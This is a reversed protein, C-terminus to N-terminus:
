MGIMGLGEEIELYTKIEYNYGPVGIYVAMSEGVAMLGQALHANDLEYFTISHVGQKVDASIYPGKKTLFDPLVPATLFRRAVEKASEPPYTVNSIIIM